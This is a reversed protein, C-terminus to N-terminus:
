SRSRKSSMSLCAGASRRTTRDRDLVDAFQAMTSNLSLRGRRPERGRAVDAARRVLRVGLPVTARPAPLSMLTVTFAGEDVFRACL